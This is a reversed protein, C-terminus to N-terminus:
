YRMLEARIVAGESPFTLGRDTFDGNRLGTRKWVGNDYIGEEVLLFQVGTYQSGLSPKFDLAADFGVFLFENQGLQGVLVRGSPEPPGTPTLPQGSSRRPPRFRVLIDYGDFYLMRGPIFEEEVAAQLKGAAQLEAIKSLVPKIVRFSEAMPVFMSSLGSEPGYDIGFPTFGIASYDALAYFFYSAYKMSGRTEVVLLPNDPRSYRSLIERYIIPSQHYIDPGIMDIDPASAKWLDLMHSVAGGSPYSDGPRDFEMFRDNTGEGGMWVNVFTPLPYIEKGAHAVENIFSSLYYATFAEEARRSGFVEKWTGPQKKLAKLLKEPVPGNFLRTAQPSYDRPSYRLGPENQVQMLIVTNHNEDIERLHKMLEAYAKRDAEMNAQSHPSLVRIPEGAKNIVRHFREPNSKVWAPVYDMTGNKWTAFWLLIARLGHERAGRIIQDLADFEFRGEEPEIQEWYVPFEVTNANLERLKPWAREMREPFASANGVQGGLIIFPKDDVFLQIVEGNKRLQPINGGAAGYVPAFLGAVVLCIILARFTGTYIVNRALM